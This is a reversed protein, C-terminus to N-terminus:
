SLTSSFECINCWLAKSGIEGKPARHVALCIKAGSLAFVNRKHYLIAVLWMLAIQNCIPNSRSTKDHRLAVFVADNDFKPRGLAAIGVGCILVLFVVLATHLEFLVVRNNALV